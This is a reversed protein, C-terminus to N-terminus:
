GWHARVIGRCDPDGAGRGAIAIGGELGIVTERRNYSDEMTEIRGGSIEVQIDPGIVGGRNEQIAVRDESRDESLAGAGALGDAAQRVIDSLNMRLESRAGMGEFEAQKLHARAAVGRAIREAQEVGAAREGRELRVNWGLRRFGTGQSEAAGSRDKGTDRQAETAPPL